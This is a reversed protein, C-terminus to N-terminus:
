LDGAVSQAYPSENLPASVSAALALWFPTEWTLLPPTPFPTPRPCPLTSGFLDGSPFLACACHDLACAFTERPTARGSHLRSLDEDVLSPAHSVSQCRQPSSLFLSSPPIPTYISSVQLILLM